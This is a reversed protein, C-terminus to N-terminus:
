KKNWSQFIVRGSRDLVEFRPPDNKASAADDNGDVREFTCWESVAVIPVTKDDKDFVPARKEPQFVFTRDVPRQKLWPNASFVGSNQIIKLYDPGLAAILKDLDLLDLVDLVDDSGSM